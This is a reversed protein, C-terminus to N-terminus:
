KYTKDIATQTIDYAYISLSRKDKFDSIVKYVKNKISSFLYIPLARLTFYESTESFFLRLKPLYCGHDRIHNQCKYRIYIHGYLSINSKNTFQAKLSYMSMNGEPRMAVLVKKKFCDFLTLLVLKHHRLLIFRDL